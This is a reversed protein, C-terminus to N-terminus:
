LGEALTDRRLPDLDMAESAATPERLQRELRPRMWVWAIALTLVLSLAYLELFGPLGMVAALAKALGLFAAFLWSAASVAGLLTPTRAARRAQEADLGPAMLRPLAVLHLAIGNLTLVTVVTIKAMLKGKSLIVAPAFGTDIGVVVLGTIWLAVLAYGVWTMGERLQERDIRRRMFIAVDAMVIGAAAAFCALVHAYLALLRLLADWPPLHM